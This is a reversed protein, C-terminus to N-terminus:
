PKSNRASDQWEHRLMGYIVLDVYRDELREVQRLVGEEVFGLRQAIARSRTNEVACRIQVRNLDLEGFAYDVLHQCAKSVIGKGEVGADIWYGIETLRNERDIYELAIQGVLTDGVWIGASFGNGNAFRQLSRQVYERTQDVTSTLRLWPVWVRLREWNRRILQYLEDSHRAELLRLAVDPGIRVEFM